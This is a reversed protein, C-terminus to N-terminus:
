PFIEVVILTLANMNARNNQLLTENGKINNKAFRPFFNKM